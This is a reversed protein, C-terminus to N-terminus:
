NGRGKSAHGDLVECRQNFVVDHWGIGRSVIAGIEGVAGDGLVAGDVVGGGEGTQLPAVQGDGEYGVAQEDVLRSDDLLIEQERVADQM